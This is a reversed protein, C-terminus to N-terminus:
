QRPKGEAACEDKFSQKTQSPEENVFGDSPVYVDYRKRIEM